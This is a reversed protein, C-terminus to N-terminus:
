YTIKVQGVVVTIDDPKGGPHKLGEERAHVSFPSDASKNASYKLALDGLCRAVRDPALKGLPEKQLCPLIDDDFLNDLLGDSAM